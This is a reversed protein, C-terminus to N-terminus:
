AHNNMNLAFCPKSSFCKMRCNVCVKMCVYIYVDEPCVWVFGVCVFVRVGNIRAFYPYKSLSMRVINSYVYCLMGILMMAMMMMLM